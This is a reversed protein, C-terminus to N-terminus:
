AKSLKLEVAVEDRGGRAIIAIAMIQMTMYM